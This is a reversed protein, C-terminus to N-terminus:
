DNSRFLDYKKYPNWFFVHNKVKLGLSSKKGDRWVWIISKETEIEELVMTKPCFVCFFFILFTDKQGKFRHTMSTKQGKILVFSMKKPCLVYFFFILFFHKKSRQVSSDDVNKQGKISVFSM